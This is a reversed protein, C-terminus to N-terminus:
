RQLQRSQKKQELLSFFLTAFSPSPQLCYGSSLGPIKSGGGTKAVPVRKVIVSTNRPVLFLDDKYEEGTQANTVVLDFDAGGKTSLKKQEVIQRKLEGLSIHGEDFTITDYDKASAFKYYISM